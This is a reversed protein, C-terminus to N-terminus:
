RRAENFAEAQRNLERQDRDNQAEHAKRLNYESPTVGGVASDLAGPDRVMVIAPVRFFQNAGTQAAVARIQANVDADAFSGIEDRTLTPFNDKFESASTTKRGDRGHTYIQLRGLQERTLYVYVEVSVHREMRGNVEFYSPTLAHHGVEMPLYGDGMGEKFLQSTHTTHGGAFRIEGQVIGQFSRQTGERVDPDTIPVRSVTQGMTRDMILEPVSKNSVEIAIIGNNNFISRLRNVANGAIQFLGNDRLPHTSLESMQIVDAAGSLGSGGPGGIASRIHRNLELAAAYRTNPDESELRAKNNGQALWSNIATGMIVRNKDNNAKDSINQLAATANYQGQTVGITIRESGPINDNIAVNSWFGVKSENVGSRTPGTPNDANLDITIRERGAAFTGAIQKAMVEIAAEPNEKINIRAQQGDEGMVPAMVWRKVSTHVDGGGGTIEEKPAFVPLTYEFDVIRRENIPKNMDDPHFVPTKDASMIAQNLLATRAGSDLALVNSQVFNDVANYNNTFNRGEPDTINIESMVKDDILQKLAKHGALPDYASPISTGYMTANQDIHPMGQKGTMLVRLNQIYDYGYSGDHKQGYATIRGFGQYHIIYNSMVNPDKAAEDFAERNQKMNDTGAEIITERQSLEHVRSSIEEHHNQMFAVMDTEGSQQFKAFLSSFLNNRDHELAATAQSYEIRAGTLGTPMMSERAQPQSAARQQAAASQQTGVANLLFSPDAAQVGGEFQYANSMPIGGRQTSFLGM